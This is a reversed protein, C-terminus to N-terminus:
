FVQIMEAEARARFRPRLGELPLLDVGVRLRDALDNQIRAQDFLSFRFGIPVDFLLDIDSTESAEDRAVSGFLYLASLGQRRLTEELPRLQALAAERKMDKNQVANCAACAKSKAVPKIGGGSTAEHSQSSLRRRRGM